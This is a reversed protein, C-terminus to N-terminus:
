PPISTVYRREIETAPGIPDYNLTAKHRVCHFHLMRTGKSIVNCNGMM